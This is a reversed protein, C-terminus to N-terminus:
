PAADDLPVGFVEEFSYLKEGADVQALGAEIDRAFNEDELISRTEALGEDQLLSVALATGLAQQDKFKALLDPTATSKAPIDVTYIATGSM